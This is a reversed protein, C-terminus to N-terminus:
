HSDMLKKIEDVQKFLYIRDKDSLSDKSAIVRLDLEIDSLKQVLKQYRISDPRIDGRKSMLHRVYQSRNMGLQSREAEFIELLDEPMSLFLRKM